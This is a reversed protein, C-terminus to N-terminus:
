DDSDDSASDCAKSALPSVLGSETFRHLQDRALERYVGMPESVKEDIAKYMRESGEKGADDDRFDLLFGECADYIADASDSDAVLVWGVWCLVVDKTYDDTKGPYINCYGSLDKWAREWIGYAQEPADAARMNDSVRDRMEDIADM